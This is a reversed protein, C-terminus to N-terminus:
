ALCTINQGGEEREKGRREWGKPSSILQKTLIHYYKITRLLFNVNFVYWWHLM